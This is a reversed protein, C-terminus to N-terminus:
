TYMHVPPAAKPPARRWKTTSLNEATVEGDDYLITVTNACILGKVVGSYWKHGGGPVGHTGTVRTGPKPLEKLKSAVAPQQQRPAASSGCARARPRPRSRAATTKRRKAAAREALQAAIEDRAAAEESPAVFADQMPLRPASRARKQM